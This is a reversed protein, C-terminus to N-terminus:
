LALGGDVKIVQGNIYSAKDSALFVALAAVEEPRGIRGAPIIKKLFKSNKKIFEGSMATDIYGPAIANVTIGRQMTEKALSKTFGIVAAKSAGYASHGPNGMLGSISVINIIRGNGQRLMGLLCARTCNYAGDVNIRFCAEWDEDAMRFLYKEPLVGANNVLIDIGGFKDRAVKAMKAVAGKDSVDARASIAKGGCKKIEKVTGQAGKADSNYNVVVRAGARAMALAIDRGIGKSAGTIIAVKDKLEM